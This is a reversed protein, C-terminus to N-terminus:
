LLVSALGALEKGLNRRLDLYSTVVVYVNIFGRNKAIMVNVLFLCKQKKIEVSEINSQHSNDKRDENFM